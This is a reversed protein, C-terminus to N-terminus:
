GGYVEVKELAKRWLAREALALLGFWIAQFALIRIADFRTGKELFVSLPAFVALQWPFAESISRLAPPFFWLPVLAGSFVSRLALFFWDLFHETKFWFSLLGTVYNLYYILAIGGVSTLLFLPITAPDQPMRLGWLVIGLISAPVATFLVSFVNRGLDEALLYYKLNVPRVLDCAISGDEMRQAISRDIVSRTLGSLIMGLIVYTVMDRYTIGDSAPRGGFLARWVSVQIFLVLFSRAIGVFTDARYVLRQRFAKWAFSLYLGM